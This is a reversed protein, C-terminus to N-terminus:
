RFHIIPRDRHIITRIWGLIAFSTVYSAKFPVVAEGASAVAPARATIVLALFLALFLIRKTKM